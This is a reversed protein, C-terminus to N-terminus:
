ARPPISPRWLCVSTRSCYGACICLIASVGILTTLGVGRLLARAGSTRQWIGAALAVLCLPVLLFATYKTCFALGLAVGAVAAQSSGPTESLKLFAWLCLLTLCAYAVDVTVLSGHAALNPDLAVLLAAISAAPEGAYHRAFLWTAMVLGLWWGITPIRALFKATPEGWHHAQAFRFPVANLLTVPTKSGYQVDSARETEGTELLRVSWGLHYPEDFTWDQHWASYFLNILSVLGVAMALWGLPPVRRGITHSRRV